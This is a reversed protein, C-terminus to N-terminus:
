GATVHDLCDPHARVHAALSTATHGTLREVADSVTRLEGAAIAAYTSIWAEVQWEPAGHAARSERAQELTEERDRIPKGSLESLLAAIEALSHAEPGTLDYTRGDHGAGTLLAAAADAVDARTV